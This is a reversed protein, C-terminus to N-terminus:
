VKSGQLHMCWNQMGLPLMRKKCPASQQRVNCDRTGPFKAAAQAEQAGQAGLAACFSSALFFFPAITCVANITAADAAGVTILSTGTDMIAGDAQLGAVIQGDVAVSDLAM